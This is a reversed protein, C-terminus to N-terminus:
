SLGSAGAEDIVEHGTQRDEVFDWDIEVGLGPSDPVAIRGSSDPQEADELFGQASM